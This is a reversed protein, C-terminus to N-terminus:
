LKRTSNHVRLYKKGKKRMLRSSYSRVILSELPFSSTYKGLKQRM